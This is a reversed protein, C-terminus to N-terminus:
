ERGQVLKLPQQLDAARAAHSKGTEKHLYVALGWPLHWNTSSFIIVYHVERQDLWRHNM